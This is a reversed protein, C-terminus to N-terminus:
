QAVTVKRLGIYKAASQTGESWLVEEAAPTERAWDAQRRAQKGMIQCLLGIHTGELARMMIYTLSWSESGLM